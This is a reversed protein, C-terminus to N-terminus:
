VNNEDEETEEMSKEEVIPEPFLEDDDLKQNSAKYAVSSIKNILPPVIVVAAACLTVSGIIWGFCSKKKSM